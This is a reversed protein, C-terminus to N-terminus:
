KSKKELPECNGPYHKARAFFFDKRLRQGPFLAVHPNIICGLGTVEAWVSYSGPSLDNVLYYGSNDTAAERHLGRTLSDVGIKVNPIVAAIDSTVFGEIGSPENTQSGALVGFLILFLCGRRIM